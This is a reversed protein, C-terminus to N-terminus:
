PPLILAALDPRLNARVQERQRRAQEDRQAAAASFNDLVIAVILNLFVFSGILLFSVFFPIAISNGCNTHSGDAPSPDCGEHPSVMAGYMVGSWSDGTLVQSSYPFLM